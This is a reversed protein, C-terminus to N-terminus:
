RLRQRSIVSAYASVREDALRSAGAVRHGGVLGQLAVGGPQHAERATGAVARHGPRDLGAAVGLRGRRRPPQQADEAGVAQPDLDLAGVGAVVAAAVPQQALQGLPQPHGGHGGAVHVGVRARPRPQLVRHHGHAQALGHVLALGPPAAVGRVRQGRGLGHGGAEGLVGVRHLLRAPQGLPQAEVQGAVQAVGVRAGLVRLGVGLQGPGAGIRQRLAVRAPRRARARGRPHVLLQPHDAVQAQGAEEQKCRSM